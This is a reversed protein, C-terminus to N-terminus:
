DEVLVGGFFGDSKITQAKVKAALDPNTVETEPAESARPAQKMAERLQNNDDALAKLQVTLKDLAATQETSKQETAAQQADFRAMIDAQSEIMQLVLAGFNDKAIQASEEPTPQDVSKHQVGAEALAKALKEPGEKLMEAVGPVGFMKDLYEDRSKSMPIVGSYTLLNAAAQRPLTSTEFKSILPIAGDATKDSKRYWYRPSAGLDEKGEDSEWYDWAKQSIIDDREKSIELLFPGKMDAWVIDGVTLGDHHWVQHINNSRFYDEAPWCSDAYRQLAKAMLAEDERDQYSSTIIAMYRQGNADRFLTQGPKLGNSFRDKVKQLLGKTNVSPIYYEVDEQPKPEDMARQDEVIIGELSEPELTLEPKSEWRDCYSNSYIDNPGNEIQHCYGGEIEEDNEYGEKAFWRCNVCAKAKNPSLAVFNVEEQSLRVIMKKAESTEIAGIQASAEDQSKHCGLPDGMPEDDEGRKYVCYEGADNKSITYPM